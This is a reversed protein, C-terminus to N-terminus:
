QAFLSANAALGSQSELALRISLTGTEQSVSVGVVSVESLREDLRLFGQTAEVTRLDVVAKSVCTRVATAAREQTITTHPLSRALRLLGGGQSPAFLDSGPTTLLMLLFRQFLRQLGSVRKAFPPLDLAVLSSATSDVVESSLVAVTQIVDGRLGEPIEAVLTVPSALVWASAPVGNLLVTEAARMRPGDVRLQPTDSPLLSVSDIPLVDRLTVVSVDSM